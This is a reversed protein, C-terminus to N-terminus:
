ADTLERIRQAITCENEYPCSGYCCDTELEGDFAEVTVMRSADARRCYGAIFEELEM